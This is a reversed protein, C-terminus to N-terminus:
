LRFRRHFNDCFPLLQHLLVSVGPLVDLVICLGCVPRHNGCVRLDDRLVGGPDRREERLARQGVLRLRLRFDPLLPWLELARGLLHLRLRRTQLAGSGAAVPLARLVDDLVEPAVRAAGAMRREAHRGRTLALPWAPTVGGLRAVKPATISSSTPM